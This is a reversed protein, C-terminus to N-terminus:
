RIERRSLRIIGHADKNDKYDWEGETPAESYNAPDVSPVKLIVDEHGPISAHIDAFTGGRDISIQVRSM